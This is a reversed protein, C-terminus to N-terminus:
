QTTLIKKLDTVDGSFRFGKPNFHTLSARFGESRLRNVLDRMKPQKLKYLRSLADITYYTPPGDAEDLILKLMKSLEKKHPLNLTNLVEMMKLCFEKDFLQGIWLPGAVEMSAGCNKCVNVRSSLQDIELIERHLCKFCHMIFGLNEFNKKNNILQVYVRIYHRTSHVVLPKIALDYKGAERHLLGLVLRIAIEHCYETRLSIGGYKRLAVKPYVGCLPPMDTATLAIIGGVLTARIASDVYPAPSGFPDIDVLNFRKGKTAHSSLVINADSRRIIVKDSLDNIVTNIYVFDIAMPNVDSLLVEKVEEVEKAYRLGRVGSATLPEAVRLKSGHTKAYTKLVCISFDRSFSMFVNYFVLSKAKEDGLVDPDPLLLKVKGEILLKVPIKISNIPASM